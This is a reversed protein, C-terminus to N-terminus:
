GIWDGAAVTPFRVGSGKLEFRSGRNRAQYQQHHAEAFYFDSAQRIETTITRNIGAEMLAAQYAERSALAAAHQDATMAHIASRYVTGVDAGQQMGQTPDHNEWFVALLEAYSVRGPDFVIRVTEAHGTQGTGVEQYTPNPTTGGAYGVATVWVGPLEWFLRESAWFRGMAFMAIAAGRPYPGKLPRQSVYHRDATQIPRARGPLAEAPKPLNLRRNLMDSLFFM